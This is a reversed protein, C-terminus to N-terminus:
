VSFLPPLQLSLSSSTPLLHYFPVFKQLLILLTKPDLTYCPSYLSLEINCLQFKSLSYFTLTQVSFLFFFFLPLIHPSTIPTNMVEFTLLRRCDIHTGFLDDHRVSEVYQMENTLYVDWYLQFFKIANFFGKGM